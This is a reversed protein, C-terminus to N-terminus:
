DLNNFLSEVAERNMKVVLNGQARFRKIHEPNKTKNAIHKLKSRYMIAKRLEKTVHPRKNVRSFKSKLTAHNDIVSSLISEFESYTYTLFLM